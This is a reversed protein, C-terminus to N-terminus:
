GMEDDTAARVRQCEVANYNLWSATDGGDDEDGVTMLLRCLAPRMSKAPPSAAPLGNGGGAPTDTTSSTKRGEKGAGSIFGVGNSSRGSSSDGSGWGFPRLGCECLVRLRPVLVMSPRCLM